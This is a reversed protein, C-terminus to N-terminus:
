EENFVAMVTATGSILDNGKFVVSFQYIMNGQTAFQKTAKISLPLLIGNVASNQHFEINKLAALYGEQMQEGAKQALLAGHVAMAQAGYEILASIPLVGNSLLPNDPQQHTKTTCVISDNDWVDVTDILCMKGAHPILDCLEVNNFM